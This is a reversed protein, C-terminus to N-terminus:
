GLDEPAGLSVAYMNIVLQSVRKLLCYFCWEYHIVATPLRAAQGESPKPTSSSSHVVLSLYSDNLKAICLM